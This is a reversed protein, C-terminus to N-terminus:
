TSTDVAQEMDKPIEAEPRVYDQGFRRRLADRLRQLPTISDERMVEVRASSGGDYANADANVV